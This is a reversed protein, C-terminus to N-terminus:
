HTKGTGQIVADQLMKIQDPRLGFQNPAKTPDVLLPSNPFQKAMSEPVAAEQLDKLFSQPVQFSKMQAGPMEQQLRTALFQEARARDGFNVFLM